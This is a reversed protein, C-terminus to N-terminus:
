RRRRRISSMKSAVSPMRGYDQTGPNDPIAINMRIWMASAAHNGPALDAYQTQPMPPIGNQEMLNCISTDKSRWLQLASRLGQDNVDPRHCFGCNAALYSRAQLDLVAAPTGSPPPDNLGLSPNTYPEVMAAAYPIVPATDDFLGMTKFADIQTVMAGGGAPTVMRHM